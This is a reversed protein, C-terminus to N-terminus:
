SSDGDGFILLFCLRSITLMVFSFDLCAAMVCVPITFTVHSLFPFRVLLRAPDRSVPVAPTVHYLPDDLSRMADALTVLLFLSLSVIDTHSPACCGCACPFPSITVASASPAHLDPKRGFDGHDRLHDRAQGGHGPIAVTMLPGGSADKEAHSMLPSTVMHIHAPGGTGLPAATMQEAETM